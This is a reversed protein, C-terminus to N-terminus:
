DQRLPQTQLVVAERLAVEDAGDEEDRAKASQQLDGEANPSCTFFFYNMLPFISHHPILHRNGSESHNVNM